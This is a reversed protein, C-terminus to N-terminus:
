QKELTMRVLRLKEPHQRSTAAAGQHNGTLPALQLCGSPGSEVTRCLHPQHNKGQHVNKIALFIGTSNFLFETAMKMQLLTSIVLERQNTPFYCLLFYCLTSVWVSNYSM